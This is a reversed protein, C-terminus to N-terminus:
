VISDKDHRIDLNEGAASASASAASAIEVRGGGDRKARYMALDAAALVQHFDDEPSGLAIGISLSPTLPTQPLAAINDLIRQGVLLADDRSTGYLLAAFEDGGIRAVVDGQRLAHEMAEAAYVLMEDGARHGLTDNVNKLSDLDIVLISFEIRGPPNTIIQGFARQNPLGTLNDTTAQAELETHIHANDLALEILHGLANCYDLLEAPVTGGRMSVTLVGDIRGNHHIPIYVSSTVGLQEIIARVAPGAGGTDVPLQTVKGTRLVGVLNPQEALPFAETISQGNEDYQAVVRVMDGEIRNYQARRATAAHPSVLEAALRTAASLVEDPHLLSTLEEAADAFAVTRRLSAERQNLAYQLRDRLSHTAVAIVLGLASWFIVRRFIAVDSVRVPTFSLIVEAAVIAAVVVFSEWRRHYLTSWALPVLIIIGVGSTASGTALVLTIVWVVELLPVFVTSWAPLRSWPLFFSAATLGYLAVSVMAWGM